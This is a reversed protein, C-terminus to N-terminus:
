LEDEMLQLVYSVVLGVGIAVGGAIFTNTNIVFETKFVMMTMLVFVVIEVLNGLVDNILSLRNM